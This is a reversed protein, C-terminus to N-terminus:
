GCAATLGTSISQTLRCQPQQQDAAIYATWPVIVWRTAATATATASASASRSVVSQGPLRM